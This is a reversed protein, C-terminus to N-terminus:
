RAAVEFIEVFARLVYRIVMGGESGAVLEGASGRQKQIRNALVVDHVLWEGFFGNGDHCYNPLSTVNRCDQLLPCCRNPPLQDLDAALDLAALDSNGSLTCGARSALPLEVLNGGSRSYSGQLQVHPAYDLKREVFVARAARVRDYASRLDFNAALARRVLGELERDDFQQWCVAEPTQLPSLTSDINVSRDM